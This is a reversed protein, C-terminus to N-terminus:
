FILGSERKVKTPNSVYDFRFGTIGTGTFELEGYGLIRGLIGQKVSLTEVKNKPIEKTNRRILGQKIFVKKNTIVQETTWKNILRGVFWVFSGLFLVFALIVFPTENIPQFKAFLVISGLLGLVPPATYIWHFKNFSIIEEDATLTQEVYSM